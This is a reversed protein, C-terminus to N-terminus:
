IRLAVLMWVDSAVACAASAVTFIAVGLLFSYDRRHREALRGLFVLLSAYVVAYGNLVWSLDNLTANGFDRAIDPLALNVIFLDLNALVVGACVIALVRNPKTRSATVQSFEVAETTRATPGGSAALRGVVGPADTM